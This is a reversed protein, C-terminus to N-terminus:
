RMTFEKSVLSVDEEIKNTWLEVYMTCLLCESVETITEAFAADEMAPLSHHVQCSLATRQHMQLLKLLTLLYSAGSHISLHLVM